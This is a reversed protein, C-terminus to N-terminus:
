IRDIINELNHTIEQLTGV